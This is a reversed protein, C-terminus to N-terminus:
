APRWAVVLRRRWTDPIHDVVRAGHGETAHVIRDGRLAIALHHVCRGIRFGLLDGPQVGAVTVPTFWRAGPGSDLWERMPSRDQARSWLPSGDPIEVEPPLVGAERYLEAVLRHCSVGAGRVASRACFPTGHWGRAAAELADLQSRNM